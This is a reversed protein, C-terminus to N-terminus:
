LIEKAFGACDTDLSVGFIDAVTKGVNSFNERVGLNVPRVRDGYILVPIYERTHDTSKDGPDCGHDATIILMDDPRMGSIFEPLFKDFRTIAAAYGLVDNRHGYLMDFDVLNIFCLGSFDENLLERAATMGEDNSHTFVSRTVGRAAFIDTIKGVAIVDFGGSKMSDLLTIGQPELSFDRRDPTRYFGDPKGSFPRAIVRSVANEGILLSRATRCYEYLTDVPVIDTHAAIQFVSDASTYVILAGTELHERGYDEIVQTGSYPKNCLIGRGTLKSFKDLVERPFGHPFTPMPESSVIGALEWHGTTTDKGASKESLKGYAGLPKETKCGVSLGDINFLGLRGLNEACFKDSKSISGLTDAGGDGYKEADPAAGVGFSDLVFLFVRKM